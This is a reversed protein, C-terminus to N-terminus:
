FRCCRARMAIEVVAAIQNVGRGARRSQRSFNVADDVDGIGAIWAFDAAERQRLLCLAGRCVTQFKGAVARRMDFAIAGIKGVAVAAANDEVHAIERLRFHDALDGKAADGRRLSDM